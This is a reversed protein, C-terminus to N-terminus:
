KKQASEACTSVRLRNDSLVNLSDGDFLAKNKITTTTVGQVGTCDLFHSYLTRMRKTFAPQLHPVSRMGGAPTSKASKPLITQTLRPLSVGEGSVM